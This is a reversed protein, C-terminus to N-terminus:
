VVAKTHDVVAIVDPAVSGCYAFTGTKTIADLTLDANAQGLCVREAWQGYDDFEVLSPPALGYDQADLRGIGIFADEDPNIHYPFFCHLPVRLVVPDEPCVISSPFPPNDADAGWTFTSM